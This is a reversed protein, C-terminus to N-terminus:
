NITISLLFSHIILVLKASQLSFESIYMSVELSDLCIFSHFLLFRVYVCTQSTSSSLEDTCAVGDYAELTCLFWAFYAKCLVSARQAEHSSPYNQFCTTSSWYRVPYQQYKILYKYMHIPHLFCTSFNKGKTKKHLILRNHVIASSEYGM